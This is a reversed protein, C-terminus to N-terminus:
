KVKKHSFTFGYEEANEELWKIKRDNDDGVEKKWEEFLRDREDFVANRAAKEEASMGSPIPLAENIENLKEIREKRWENEIDSFAKTVNTSFPMLEQYQKMYESESMTSDLKNYEHNLDQIAQYKSVPNENILSYETGDATIVYGGRTGFKEYNVIDQDSYVIDGLPHNHIHYGNESAINAGQSVSTSRAKGGGEEIINGESDMVMSYETKKSMMKKEFSDLNDRAKQPVVFEPKKEEEQAPYKEKLALSKEKAADSEQKRAYESSNPNAEAEKQEMWSDFYQEQMFQDYLEDDHSHDIGKIISDMRCRCNYVESPEGNPDAPYELKDGYMTTFYGDAGREQGDLELHTDRTRADYTCSWVDVMEIGAEKIRESAEARGANQAGITATRANRVSAAYDMDTVMRLNKAIDDIPQGQLIGQQIAEGIKQKNWLKDKPIDVRPAPLLDSGKAIKAVADANYITFTDYSLGGAKAMMEAKYGQFNYNDVYISPLEGNVMQMALKDTNTMDNALANIQAQMKENLFMKRNRWQLFEEEKMKGAAVLAQKQADEKAYQSLFSSLKGEMEKNATKYVSSLRTEMKKLAKDTKKFGADDIGKKKEKRKITGM